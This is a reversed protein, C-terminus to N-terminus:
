CVNITDEFTWRCFSAVRLNTLNGRAFFSHNQVFRAQVCPAQLCPAPACPALKLIPVLRMKLRPSCFHHQSYTRSIHHPRPHIRPRTLILIPTFAIFFTFILRSGFRHTLIASPDPISFPFRISRFLYTLVVIPISIAHVNVLVVGGKKEPGGGNM